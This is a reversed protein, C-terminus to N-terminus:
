PGRACFVGISRGGLEVIRRSGPPLDAVRGVPYPRTRRRESM